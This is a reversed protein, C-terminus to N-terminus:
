ILGKPSRRVHFLNIQCTGHFKCVVPPDTPTRFHRFPKSRLETMLGQIWGLEFM